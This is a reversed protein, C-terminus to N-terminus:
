VVKAIVKEATLLIEYNLFIAASNPPRGLMKEYIHFIRSVDTYILWLRSLHGTLCAKCYEYYENSEFRISFRYQFRTCKNRKVVSEESM